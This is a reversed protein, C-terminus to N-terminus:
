HIFIADLLLNKVDKGARKTKVVCILAFISQRIERSYRYFKTKNLRGKPTSLHMLKNDRWEGTLQYMKRRNGEREAEKFDYLLRNIPELLVLNVSIMSRNYDKMQNDLAQLFKAMRGRNLEGRAAHIFLPCTDKWDKGCLETWRELYDLIFDYTACLKLPPNNLELIKWFWDPLAIFPDGHRKTDMLSTYSIRVYSNRVNSNRADSM